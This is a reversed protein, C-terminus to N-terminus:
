HMYLLKLKELITTNNNGINKINEKSTEPHEVLETYVLNELKIIEKYTTVLLNITTDYKLLKDEKRTNILKITSIYTTGQTTDRDIKNIKEEISSTLELEIRKRDKEEKQKDDKEKNALFEKYPINVKDYAEKNWKFSYIYFDPCDVFRINVPINKDDLNIINTYENKLYEKYRILYDNSPFDTVNM